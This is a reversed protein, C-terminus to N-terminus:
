PEILVNVKANIRQALMEPHDVSIRTQYVREDAAESPEMPLSRNEIQPSISRVVGELPSALSASSIVAKQGPHVRVIDTEYVEAIVDMRSTDALTVVGDPGVAEGARAVIRIVRARVPSRVTGANQEIRARDLDAQAAALESKALNVDSERVETLSELRHRAAELLRDSDESKLRAEDVQVRPVFDKQGLAQKQDLEQRAANSETQLRALESKLALVDGPRAGAELQALRSKAIAVRAEEQQVAAELDPLSQLTAIVEGPAVMQGEQVLLKAIVPTRGLAPSAAVVIIGNEPEVRGICGVGVPTGVRGAANASVPQAVSKGQRNEFLWWAGGALAAILFIAAWKIRGTTV